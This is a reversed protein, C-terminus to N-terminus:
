RVSRSPIKKRGGIDGLQNQGLHFLTHGLISACWPCFNKGQQDDKSTFWVYPDGVKMRKKCHDCWGTFDAIARGIGIKKTM